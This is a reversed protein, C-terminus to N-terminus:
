LSQDAYDAIFRGFLGAFVMREFFYKPLPLAGDVRPLAMSQAVLRSACMRFLWVLGVRRGVRADVPM